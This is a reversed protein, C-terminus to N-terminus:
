RQFTPMDVTYGQVSVKHLLATSDAIGNNTIEVMLYFKEDSDVTLVNGAVTLVETFWANSVDTTAQWGTLNFVATDGETWRGIAVRIGPNGANSKLYRVRFQRFDFNKPPHIPVMFTKTAGIGGTIHIYPESTGGGLSHQLAGGGVQNHFGAEYMTLSDLDPGYIDTSDIYYSGRATVNGTGGTTKSIIVDADLIVTAQGAGSNRVWFTHGAADDFEITLDHTQQITTIDAIDEIVVTSSGAGKNGLKIQKSSGSNVMISLDADVEGTVKKHVGLDASSTVGNHEVAFGAAYSAYPITVAQGATSITEGVGSLVTGIFVYNEDSQLANSDTILPGLIAVKYHAATTSVTTQGLKGDGIGTTSLDIKWAGTALDKIMRAFGISVLPDDNQVEVGVQETDLWVVCYMSWSNSSNATIWKRMDLATLAGDLKVVINGSGDLTITDPTVTFGPVDAWVSYGRSGDRATGVDVPFKTQGIYVYYITGNNNEYPVSTFWAANHVTASYSGSTYTRLTSASGCTILDGNDTVANKDGTITLRRDNLADASATIGLGVGAGTPDFVAEGCVAGITNELENAVARLLYNDLANPGIIQKAFFGTYVSRM